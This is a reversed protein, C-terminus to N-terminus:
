FVKELEEDIEEINEIIYEHLKQIILNQMEEKLEGTCLGLDAEPLSLSRIPLYCAMEKGQLKQKDATGKKIVLAKVNIECDEGTKGKITYKWTTDETDRIYNTRVCKEQHSQFCEMNSCSYHFFFTFYLAIVLLIIIAIVLYAKWNERKKLM